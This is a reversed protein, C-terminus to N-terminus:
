RNGTSETSGAQHGLCVGQWQMGAQQQAQNVGEMAMIESRCDQTMALLHLHQGTPVGNLLMTMIFVSMEMDIGKRM